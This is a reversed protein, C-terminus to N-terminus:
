SHKVKEGGLRAVALSDGAQLVTSGGPILTKGDRQILVILNGKPLRIESLSKGTWKSNKDLCIEWM